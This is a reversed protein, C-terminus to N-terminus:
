KWLFDFLRSVPYPYSVDKFVDPTLRHGKPKIRFLLSLLPLAVTLRYLCFVMQGVPDTLNRTRGHGVPDTFNPNLYIDFILYILIEEETERGSNLM